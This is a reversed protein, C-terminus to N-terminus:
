MPYGLVYIIIGIITGRTLGALFNVIVFGRMSLLKGEKNLLSFVYLPITDVMFPISMIVFLAYYGYRRVFWESKKLLWRFWGWRRLKEVTEEIKEGIIFVGAAGVSKGLALVLVKLPFYIGPDGILAVEIPIPLIIAALVCFVFFVLLYTAPDTQNQSLWNMLGSFFDSIGNLISM